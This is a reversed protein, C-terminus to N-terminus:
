NKLMNKILKFLGKSFDWKLHLYPVDIGGFSYNFRAVNPVNSGEFSFDFGKAKTEEIEVYMLTQMAAYEKGKETTVGKLYYVDKNWVIFLGMALIEGDLKIAKVYLNNQKLEGLLYNFRQLEIDRIGGVKFLLMRNMESLMDALEVEEILYDLGKLKKLNRKAQTNLTIPQDLRVIQFNKTNVEKNMLRVNGLNIDARDFKSKLFEVIPTFDDIQEGIVDICRTFVPNTLCKSNLRVTYPLPLISTYNDIVLFSCKEALSDLYLLHNYITASPTEALLQVYKDEELEKRSVIQIKTNKTVKMLRLNLM